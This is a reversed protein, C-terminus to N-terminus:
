WIEIGKLQVTKPTKTVHSSRLKLVNYQLADKAQRLIQKCPCLTVRALLNGECM